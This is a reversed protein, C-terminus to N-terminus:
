SFSFPNEAFYYWDLTELSMIKANDYKAVMELTCIELTYM